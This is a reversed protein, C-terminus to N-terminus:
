SVTKADSNALVMTEFATIVMATLVANRIVSNAMVVSKADLCVNELTSTAYGELHATAKEMVTTMVCIIVNTDTINPKM